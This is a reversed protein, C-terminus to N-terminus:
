QAAPENVLAFAAPGAGRATARVVYGGQKRNATFTPAVAVGAVNTRVRVVRARGHPGAFSGSPGHAPAVFTVLTGAVPNDDKDTVTVALRIPFRSGAATSETAAVGAAVSTPRGARNRLSFHTAASGDALAATATFSGATTNADLRPSSAIGSTDTTATAQAAGGVFTAGAGPAAAGSAGVGAGLSFTVTAGQV